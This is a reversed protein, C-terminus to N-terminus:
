GLSASAVPVPKSLAALLPDTAMADRSAKQDQEAAHDAIAQDVDAASWGLLKQATTRVGLGSTVLKQVSDAALSEVRTEPDGWRPKVPVLNTPDEYLMIWRFVRRWSQGFSGYEGMAKIRRVMPAEDTKLLEASMHSKLDMSYYTSAVSTRARIKQMAHDSWEVFSALGAPTLQGFTTDNSTSVWMRDARPNFGIMPKGNRDLMPKKPDKPDKPVTLGTAYRIPVAGFHGAFVMLGEVLDVIDVLSAIPEIESQPQALPRAKHNFEVVPVGAVGSPADSVIVWRSMAQSGEPDPSPAGSDDLDIVRGPLWLRLSQRGTWEDVSVKLAADVDYPPAPMRHVAMQEATEVGVVARGDDARIVQAFSVAKILAERHAERHMVDLDCDDWAKQALEAAAKDDSQSGLITLREVLADVGIAAMGVRPPDIQKVANQFQELGYVERYESEIFPLVWENRYRSEYQRSYAKQKEIKELLHNVWEIVTPM